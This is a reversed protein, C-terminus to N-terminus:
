KTTVQKLRGLIHRLLEDGHFLSSINRNNIRLQMEAHEAKLDTNAMRKHCLMHLVFGLKAQVYYFLTRCMTTYM